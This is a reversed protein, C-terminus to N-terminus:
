LKVLKKKIFEVCQRNMEVVTVEKVGRSCFEYTINGTGSFLDLVNLEEFYFNNNIINFLAEKAQDTTPRVPLRSPAIIKRGKHIGSIIRL